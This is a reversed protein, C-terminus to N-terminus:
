SEKLDDYILTHNAFAKLFITSNTIPCRGGGYRAGGDYSVMGSLCENSFHSITYYRGKEHQLYVGKKIVNECGDIKNPFYVNLQICKGQEGRFIEYNEEYGILYSPTKLSQLIAYIQSLKVDEEFEIGIQEM